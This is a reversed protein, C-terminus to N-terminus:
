KYIMVRCNSKGKKSINVIEAFSFKGMGRVSIVDDAKLQKANETCQRGNLFILGKPFMELSDQRSLNYVKAVVADIRESSVQIIKEELVPATIDSVDESVQVKVSTHKIRTLNEVIYESMSQSCFLCAINDKVFIDGLTERKIGLNMLAGLFDRHNLKDAFKSILPKIVVAVIPFEEEYGLEDPNGFRVMKREAIECGGYVKPCAFVLEREIDYFQALEAMSLFSTFTFQNNNYSRNALEKFRQSQIGADSM